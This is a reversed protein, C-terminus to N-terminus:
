APGKAGSVLARRLFAKSADFNGVLLNGPGGYGLLGVVSAVEASRRGTRGTSLIMDKGAKAAPTQRSQARNSHDLEVV